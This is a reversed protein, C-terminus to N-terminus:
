KHDAKAKVPPLVEVVPQYEITQVKAGGSAQALKALLEKLRKDIEAQTAPKDSVVERRSWDGYKERFRGAAAWRWLNANFSKSGLGERAQEEWWALELGLAKNFAKLFPPRKKCWYNITGMSVGIDRAWVAQSKGESGLKLILDCYEAKYKPKRGIRTAM